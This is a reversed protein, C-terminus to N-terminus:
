MQKWRHLFSSRDLKPGPLTFNTLNPAFSVHTDERQLPPPPCHSQTLIEFCLVFQM